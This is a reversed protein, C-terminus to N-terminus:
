DQCTKNQITKSQWDSAKAWTKTSINQSNTIFYDHENIKFEGQYMKVYITNCLEPLPDNDFELLLDEHTKPFAKFTMNKM